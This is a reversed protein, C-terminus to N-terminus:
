GAGKDGEFLRKSVEGKIEEWLGSLIKEVSYNMEFDKFDVIFGKEIDAIKRALTFQLKRDQKKLEANIDEIFDQTIVSKDAGSLLISGQREEEVSLLINRLMAKYRDAEYSLIRELAQSFVKDLVQQRNDLKEKRLRLLTTAMQRSKISQLEEEAHRIIQAAEKDAEERGRAAIQEGEAQAKAILKQGQAEAEDEIKQIITALSM